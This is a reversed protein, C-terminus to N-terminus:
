WWGLVKWWLLGGGLWILIHFISIIFGMTFWKPTQVYNLGFYIIVPGSSYSTLCGSLNSFYAFIAAAILPYGGAALVVALFVSVMASIHATLMSFAYMSYFYILGLIIITTLGSFGIVQEKAHLVFWDIFGYDKLLNAMTLLGGLWILTDWAKKNKIIDDWIQTNTVLMVSVGIWAVLTTSLGHLFKTSWLILLLILIGLMIGEKVSLKAGIEDLQKKAEKQAIKSNTLTPKSLKYIVLPLLSLSILGPVIAGLAWTGWGFEIGQIDEVARSVLPNAAMGTLFMAATILNAHSGVLTLFEGAKKPNDKPTSGLAISISNVIPALIGGGRATNSPVVPGLILEAGCIAYGLGLTTKGLWGVLKLAIRKGLGTNIVGGAILFAAVVLWVTTDGYGSLAEKMTITKTATLAVLGLIVMLGMPYPKIIFSCIIAIFVAFIHWSKIPAEVLSGSLWLIVAILVVIFLKFFTNQTKM